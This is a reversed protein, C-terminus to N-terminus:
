TTTAIALWAFALAARGAKSVRMAQVNPIYSTGGTGTLSYCAKLDILKHWIRDGGAVDGNHYALWLGDLSGGLDPSWSHHPGFRYNTDDPDYGIDGWGTKLIKRGLCLDDPTAAGDWVDITNWSPATLSTTRYTGLCPQNHIPGHEDKGHTVYVEGSLRRQKEEPSATEMFLEIAEALNARAESVTGGQSAIDLEPCLAVYGDDEREIIATFQRSM